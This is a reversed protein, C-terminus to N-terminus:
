DTNRKHTELNVQEGQAPRHGLSHTPFLVISETFEAWAKLPQVTRWPLMIMLIRPPLSYQKWRVTQRAQHVPEAKIVTEMGLTEWDMDTGKNPCKTQRDTNTKNRVM